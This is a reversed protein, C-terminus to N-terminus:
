SRLGQEFLCCRADKVVHSDPHDLLEPVRALDDAQGVVALVQIGTRILVPDKLELARLAVRRAKAPFESDDETRDGIFQRLLDLDKPMVASVKHWAFRDGHPGNLIFWQWVPDAPDEADKLRPHEGYWAM